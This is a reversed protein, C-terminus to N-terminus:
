GGTRPSIVQGIRLTRREVLHLVKAQEDATQTELLHVAHRWVWERWQTIIHATLREDVRGMLRDVVGMIPMAPALVDDQVADITRGIVHNVHCHDAYRAARGQQSLTDWEPKLLDVATLVLDYNIHANVGLLLNQLPSVREQRTANHTLQWVLPTAAPNQEYAELAVFYYDAFRHLLREVWEPDNFEHRELALLTNRTMMMYCKLFIARRDANEQWQQVLRDMRAVVPANLSPSRQDFNREFM